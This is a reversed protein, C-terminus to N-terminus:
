KLREKISKYKGMIKDLEKNADDFPIIDKLPKAIADRISKELDQGKVVSRLNATVTQNMRETLNYHDRLKTKLNREVKRIAGFLINREEDIQRSISSVLKQMTLARDMEGNSHCFKKDIAKAVNPRKLFRNIFDPVIVYLLLTEAAKNKEEIYADILDFHSRKSEAIKGSLQESLTVTERPLHVCATALLVIFPILLKRM